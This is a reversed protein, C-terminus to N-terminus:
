RNKGSGYVTKTKALLSKETPHFPGTEGGKCCFGPCQIPATGSKLEESQSLTSTSPRSEMVLEKDHPISDTDHKHSSGITLSDEDGQEVHDGSGGGCATNSLHGGGSDSEFNLVTFFSIKFIM